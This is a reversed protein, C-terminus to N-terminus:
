QEPNKDKPLIASLEFRQNNIVIVYEGEDISWQVGPLKENKELPVSVGNLQVEVDTTGDVILHKPADDYRIENLMWGKGDAVRHVTPAGELSATELMLIPRLREVEHIAGDFVPPTQDLFQHLFLSEEDEDVVEVPQITYEIFRGAISDKKLGYQQRLNRAFPRIHAWGDSIGMFVQNLVTEMTEALDLTQVVMMDLFLLYWLDSQGDQDEMDFILSRERLRMELMATAEGLSKQLSNVINLAETSDPDVQLVLAAVGALELHQGMSEIQQFETQLRLVTNQVSFSM